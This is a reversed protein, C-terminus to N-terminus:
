VQLYQVSYELSRVYTRSADSFGDVAPSLRFIGYVFTEEPDPLNGTFGGRLVSKIARALAIADAAANGHCDIQVQWEMFGSDGALVYGPADVIGRYAWAQPTKPSVLDKPLEVFFGGPVQVPPNLAALRQEILMVLGLEIGGTLPM